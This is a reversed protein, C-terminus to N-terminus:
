LSDCVDLTIIGWSLLPLTLGTIFATLINKYDLGTIVLITIILMSSLIQWMTLLIQKIWITVYLKLTYASLFFMILTLNLRAVASTWQVFTINIIRTNMCVDANFNVHHLVDCNHNLIPVLLGHDYGPNISRSIKM